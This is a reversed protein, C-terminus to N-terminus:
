VLSSTLTHTHNTRFAMLTITLLSLSLSNHRCIPSFPLTRVTAFVLLVEPAKWKSLSGIIPKHQARSPEVTEAAVVFLFDFLAILPAVTPSWFHALTRTHHSITLSLSLPLTFSYFLLLASLRRENLPVIIAIVKSSMRVTTKHRVRNLVLQPLLVCVCVCPALSQSASDPTV